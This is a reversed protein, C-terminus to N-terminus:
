TSSSCAKLLVPLKDRTAKQARVLLEHNVNLNSFAKSVDQQIRCWLHSTMEADVMARHAKDTQPLGLLQVLTSL